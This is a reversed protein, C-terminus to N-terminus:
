KIDKIKYRRTRDKKPCVEGISESPQNLKQNTKSGEKVDPLLYSSRHSQEEDYRKENNDNSKIPLTILMTVLIVFWLEIM